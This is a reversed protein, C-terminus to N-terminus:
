EEAHKDQFIEHWSNKKLDENMQDYNGKYFQYRPETKPKEAYLNIDIKLCLHDSAGLPPLYEIDRVM